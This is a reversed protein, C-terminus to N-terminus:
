RAPTLDKRVPQQLSAGVKEVKGDAVFGRERYFEMAQMPAMVRVSADGRKRAEEILADLMLGGVGRRRWERVVVMRSIQGDPMLRATGIPRGGDYALVHICENDGENVEVGTAGTKAQMFVEFRLPSAHHEAESWPLVKIVVDSM